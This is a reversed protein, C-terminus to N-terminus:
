DGPTWSKMRTDTVGYPDDHFYLPKAFQYAALMFDVKELVLNSM